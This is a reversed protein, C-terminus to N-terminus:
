LSVELERMYAFIEDGYEAVMSTDWAEDEIEEMTRAGEVLDKAAALEKEAKRTVKPFLVTTAGGTTNDGRSRYSHATTYGQEDYVEEEEDEWYEEPEPLRPTPPLARRQLDLTTEVVTEQPGHQQNEKISAQIGEDFEALQQEQADEYIPDSPAPVELSNSHSNNIVKSQTRRIVPQEQKLLPQSRHQRPGLNQHVPAIPAADQQNAQGNEVDTDKYISTARKSLTRKPPPALPKSEVKAAISASIPDSSTTYHSAFPATPKASTATSPRQAPRLLGSPKDHLVPKVIEITKKAAAVSDDHSTTNLVRATNSVDGFATRKAPAKLATPIM